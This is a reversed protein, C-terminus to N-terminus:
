HSTNFKYQIHRRGIILTSPSRRSKPSKPNYSGPGPVPKIYFIEREKVKQRKYDLARNELNFISHITYKTPCPSDKCHSSKPEWRKGSGFSCSKKVLSPNLLKYNPSSNEKQMPFRSSKGLSCKKPGLFSQNTNSRSLKHELPKIKHLSTM